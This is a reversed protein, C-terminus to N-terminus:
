KGDSTLAQPRANMKVQVWDSAVIKEFLVTILKAISPSMAVCYDLRALQIVCRSHAVTLQQACALLKCDRLLSAGLYCVRLM